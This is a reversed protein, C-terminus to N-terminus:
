PVCAIYNFVRCKGQTCMQGALTEAVVVRRASDFDNADAYGLKRCYVRAIPAGCVESGVSQCAHLRYGHPSLPPEFRAPASPLSVQGPYATGPKPFAGPQQFVSGGAPAIVAATCTSRIDATTRLFLSPARQAWGPEVRSALQLTGSRGISTQWRVKTGAAIPVSGDNLLELAAWPKGLDVRCALHPLQVPAPMPFPQQGYDPTPFSPTPAVVAATCTANYDAMTAPFLSPAYEQWGPDLRARLRLVGSRGSSTLWQVKTGVPIAAAGDNRIQLAGSSGEFGVRCSLKPPLAVRTTQGTYPTVVQYQTQFDAARTPGAAAGLMLLALAGRVVAKM